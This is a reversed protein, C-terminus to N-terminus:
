QASEHALESDVLQGLEDVDDLAVHVNDARSRLPGADDRTKALVNVLVGKALAHLGANGPERLDVLVIVRTELVDARLNTVVELVKAALAQALVQQDHRFRDRRHHELNAPPSGPNLSLRNPKSARM